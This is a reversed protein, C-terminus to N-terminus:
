WFLWYESPKEIWVIKYSIFCVSNYHPLTCSEGMNLTFTKSVILQFFLPFRFFMADVMVIFQPTCILLHPPLHLFNELPPLLVSSAASHTLKWWGHCHGLNRAVGWKEAFDEQEEENRQPIKDCIRTLIFSPQKELFHYLIFLEGRLKRETVDFGQLWVNYWWFFASVSIWAFQRNENEHYNFISLILRFCLGVNDFFLPPFEVDYLLKSILM